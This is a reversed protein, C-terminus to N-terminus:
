GSVEVAKRVAAPRKEERDVKGAEEKMSDKAYLCKWCLARNEQPRPQGCACNLQRGDRNAKSSHVHCYPRYAEGGTKLRCVFSCGGFSCTPRTLAAQKHKQPKAKEPKFQKPATQKEPEEEPERLKELELPQRVPNDKRAKKTSRIEEEGQVGNKVGGAGRVTTDGKERARKRPGAAEEEAKQEGKTAAAAAKEKGKELEELRARKSPGGAKEEAKEEGKMREQTGTTTLFCYGRLDSLTCGAEGLEVPSYYLQVALLKCIRGKGSSFNKQVAGGLDYFIASLSTKVKNIGRTPM